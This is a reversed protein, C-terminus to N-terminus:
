KDENITELIRSDNAKIAKYLKINGDKGVVMYRPIWDLNIAKGFSGKMGTPVFYHDGKIDRKEIAAKWSDKKRDVSLFVYELDDSATQKQLAKVLPLGKLCDSCWSAWVDIVVTKGKHKDLINKFTVDAGDLTMFKESLTAADFTTVTKEQACASIVIAVFAILVIKLKMNKLKLKIKNEPRVM